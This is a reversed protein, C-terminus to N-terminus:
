FEEDNDLFAELRNNSIIAHAPATTLGHKYLVGDPLSIERDYDGDDYANIAEICPDVMFLPVPPYLNGRLHNAVMQSLGIELDMMGEIFARGM